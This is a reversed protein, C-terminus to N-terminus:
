HFARRICRNCNSLEPSVNGSEGRIGDWSAVLDAGFGVKVEEEDEGAWKNADAAAAAPVPLKM